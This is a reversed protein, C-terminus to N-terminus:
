ATTQLIILADLSTARGDCNMDAEDNPPISGVAMQLVTFADAATVEGNRNADGKRPAVSVTINVLYSADETIYAYTTANAPCFYFKVNDGDELVNGGLGKPAPADNIYIAWTNNPWAENEIGAISELWFSGYAEYWTDSANFALGTATLAGLDTTSNVDYSASANNSPVFAFTTGNTLMVTGDFLVEQVTAQVTLNNNTEDSEAVADDSDVIATLNFSGASTPTWTFVVSVSSGAGLSTVTENDIITEEVKLSVNFSGADASGINSVNVMIAAPVGASLSDTAISTPTLDPEEEAAEGLYNEFGAMLPHHDEGLSDPVTYSTDGLGDGDSGTYDSSWYNGLYNTYTTGGYTYDIPETSNWYTTTPPTTGSTTAGAGNDIFNNLYIKNGEGADYLEIGYTNSILNNRTVTNNKPYDLELSIGAGTNGEITNNVITCCDGFVCLACYDCAPNLIVNNEFTVNDAKLQCGEGATLGDFVCNRIICNPAPGSEGLYLGCPSNIVKIGELASGTANGGSDPMRINNEGGCDVTVVDVGEGIVKIYPKDVYFFSYSGNYVFVTDGPSADVIALHISEGDHVYWTTASAPTVMMMASLLAIMCVIYIAKM